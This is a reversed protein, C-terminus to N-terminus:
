RSGGPSVRRRTVQDCEPDALRPDLQVARPAATRRIAPAVPRGHLLLDVSGAEIAGRAASTVFSQGLVGRRLLEQLFVDAISKTVADV